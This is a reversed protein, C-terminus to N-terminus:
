KAGGLAHGEASVIPLRRRVYGFVELSEQTSLRTLCRLSGSVVLVLHM